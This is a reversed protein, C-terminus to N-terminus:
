REELGRSMDRRFEEFEGEDISVLKESYILQALEDGDGKLGKRLIENIVRSLAKVSGYRRVAEMVLLEYIDDDLLITTRKVM